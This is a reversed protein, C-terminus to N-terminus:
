GEKEPPVLRYEYLGHRPDGCRRKDVRYSGFRPRRLFRLQASISAPPDGTIAEIQRLTRWEGDLMLTRIRVHQSALRAQDLDPEYDSGHFRLEDTVVCDSM